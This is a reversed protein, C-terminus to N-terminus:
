HLQVSVYRPAVALDGLASHTALGTLFEFEDVNVPHTEVEVLFHRALSLIRKLRDPPQFPPLSFFFDSLRHRRTLSRDVLERYFRNTFHKEGPLFSFNRRVVTGAPLLKQFLVNACLHMHHHGDIREPLEGYIRQFEDIQSNVAYCFSPALGPHFIAQAFRTMWLFKTIRQQHEQLRASARGTFPSTLNLHLGADTGESRAIAAARESDEMFVMASVSSVTRHRICALTKDTTEANRGWDDANVILSGKRQACDITM